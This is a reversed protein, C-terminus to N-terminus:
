CWVYRFGTCRATQCEIDGGVSGESISGDFRLGDGYQSRVLQQRIRRYECM